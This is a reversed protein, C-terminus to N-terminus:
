GALTPFAYDEGKAARDSLRVEGLVQLTLSELIFIYM